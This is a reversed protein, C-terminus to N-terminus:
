PSAGDPAAGFLDHVPKWEAGLPEDLSVPMHTGVGAVHAGSIKPAWERATVVVPDTFLKEPLDLTGEVVPLGERVAGEVRGYRLAANQLLLM